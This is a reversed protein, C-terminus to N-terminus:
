AKYRAKDALLRNTERAGLGIGLRRTSRTLTITVVAISLLMLSAPEPVSPVSLTASLGTSDNFYTKNPGYGVVFDLTDGLQLSLTKSFSPGSGFAGVTGDFISTGDLLIHVDTSTPGSFDLGQFASNLSYVAATPTTFRIVAYEGNPGPHFGLQGPPVSVTGAYTITSNTGNHFITPFSGPPAGTQVGGEWFDLSDTNQRLSDLIFSSGLTHSWGYTWVGNPITTASFDNAADYTPGANAPTVSLSALGLLIFVKAIPSSASTQM